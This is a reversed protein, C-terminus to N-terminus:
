KMGGSQLRWKAIAEGMIMDDPTTLKINEYSGAVMAINRNGFQEILSADDTGLYGEAQAQEHAQKLEQTVFAQPTQVQWLTDRPITGIVNGGEAKKITDKVPVGVIAAQQRMVSKSVAKLIEQTVFPRAGDHVFVYGSQNEVALLGQYVSDQRECGGVVLEIPTGCESFYTEILAEVLSREDEQIVVIARQCAPDALFTALAYALVPKGNLELLVKNRSARMRRGQGAGLLILEYEM